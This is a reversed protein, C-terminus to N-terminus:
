QGALWLLGTGIGLVAVVGVLRILTIVVTPDTNWPQGALTGLATLVLFVGVLVSYIGLRDDVYQDIRAM